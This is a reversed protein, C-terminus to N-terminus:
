HVSLSIPSPIDSREITVNQLVPVGLPNLEYGIVYPKILIYNRGFLIPWVAADQVILDEAQRYLAQSMATDSLGAAQDLLSDVEENSYEGWNNDAGTQFLVELFNQQHPYDAIWGQYYIQDKEQKLNYLFREPELQRISVDIGLNTKWQFIIAELEPTITGGYGLTTLVIQPINEISGYSSQSILADALRLDFGLGSMTSNHGPIGPPVIGQAAQPIDNFVLRVITERDLALCFAQRILPDNFPPSNCNFGLFYFSLESVVQAESAFPGNVDLARDIYARDVVAVDVQGTEYLDMPRGALFRFVVSELKPAGGYYDSNRDLRIFSNSSWEALKFPGTGIPSRWWQAGGVSNRDVVYATAYTLKALFYSRPKDIGISLTYDDIIHLGELSISAGSLMQVAGVIDGLYTRATTSGTSPTLAREFSYKIDASTVPRGDHFKVDKRLKFTYMTGDASITWSEAIDPMVGTDTIKVLGSFIQTVFTLAGADGVMAPDLTFPEATTLTLRGGSSTPSPVIAAPTCSSTILLSFAALLIIFSAGIRFGTM